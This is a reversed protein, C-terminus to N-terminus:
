VRLCGRKESITIMEENKECGSAIRGLKAAALIFTGTGVFPDIMTDGEHTSHRILLSALADPKQWPHQSRGQDHDPAHNCEIASLQEKM